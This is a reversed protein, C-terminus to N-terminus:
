QCNREVPSDWRFLATRTGESVGSDIRETETESPHAELDSANERLWGILIDGALGLHRPAVPKSSALM